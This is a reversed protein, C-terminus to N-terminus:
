ARRGSRKRKADQKLKLQKVYDNKKNATNRVGRYGGIPVGSKDFIEVDAGNLRKAVNRLTTLLDCTDNVGTSTFLVKGGYEITAVKQADKRRHEPRIRVKYNPM